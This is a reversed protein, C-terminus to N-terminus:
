HNVNRVQYTTGVMGRREVPTCEANYLPCVTATMGVSVGLAARILVVGIFSEIFGLALCSAACILGILVFSLKRGIRQSITVSIMSGIWAGILISSVLVGTMSAQFDSSSGSFWHGEILPRSLGAIIGTNYSVLM